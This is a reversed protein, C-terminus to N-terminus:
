GKPEHGRTSEDEREAAAPNTPHPPHRNERVRQSSFQTHCQRCLFVDVPPEGKVTATLIVDSSRCLPCLPLSEDPM